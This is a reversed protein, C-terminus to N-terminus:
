RERGQYEESHEWHVKWNEVYKAALTKDRIMLLNEANKDEAAKTFTFSGTIVEQSGPLTVTLPQHILVPIRNAHEPPNYSNSPALDLHL